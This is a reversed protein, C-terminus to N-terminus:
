IRSVGYKAFLHKFEDPVEEGQEWLDFATSIQMLKGGTGERIKEARSKVEEKNEGELMGFTGQLLVLAAWDHSIKVLQITPYRPANGTEKWAEGCEEGLERIAAAIDKFIDTREQEELNLFNNVSKRNYAM